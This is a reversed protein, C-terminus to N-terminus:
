HHFASPRSFSARPTREVVIVGGAAAKVGGGLAEGGQEAGDEESGSGGATVVPYKKMVTDWDLQDSILASFLNILKSIPVRVQAMTDRDRVTVAQDVLSEFDVTVGYPVGLEDSRSYRRGITGSSLDMRNPINASQLQEKITNIIPDFVPNSILRYIGVKIPAVCARLRMVCRQEDGERQLFSHELVAYIIRGIGYSPEIVSPTYKVEVVTKKESQFTVLDSTITYGSIQASGNAELDYKLKLADESEISELAAIVAKQEGKFRPGILKKNAEVALREVIIPEPLRYSATMAVGTRQSHQQLDYCARDAHGVCEVWGYSMQIEMDWCDAAYHAM